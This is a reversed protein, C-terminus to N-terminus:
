RTPQARAMLALRARVVSLPPAQREDVPEEQDEESTTLLSALDNAKALEVADRISLGRVEALSRVAEALGSDTQTYAPYTVPSVDGDNISVQELTRLPYGDNTQGWSDRIAFFGFSSQTIDGREVSITLDRGVTTDPVDISYYLGSNDTSIRLTGATTRGLILSPDHNFLARVDPTDSITEDFATPAVQEVFGGLNRSIKNFVAAHGELIAGGNPQQRVTLETSFWRREM